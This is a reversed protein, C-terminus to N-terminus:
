LEVGEPIFKSIAERVERKTVVRDKNKDYAPNYKAILERMKETRGFWYDDPKGVAAPYFVALYVDVYSKMRGRYFVLYRYVYDLQEVNSLEKLEEITTGLGKATGPMFQILGTAKSYKNQISPSFTKATEIAMTLMLWNPNIQLKESIEKVKAIFEKKNKKVKEEYIM